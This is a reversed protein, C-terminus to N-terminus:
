EQPKKIGLEDLHRMVLTRVFVNPTLGIRAAEVALPARLWKPFLIQTPYYNRNMGTEKQTM